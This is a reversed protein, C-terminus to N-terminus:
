DARELEFLTQEATSRLDRESLAKLTALEDDATYLDILSDRTRSLRRDVCPLVCEIAKPVRVRRGSELDTKYDIV